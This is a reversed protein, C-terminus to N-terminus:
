WDDGDESKVRKIKGQFMVVTQGGHEPLDYLKAKGDGVVIIFPKNKRIIDINLGLKMTRPDIKIEKFPLM